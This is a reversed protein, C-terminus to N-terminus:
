WKIAGIFHQIDVIKEPKFEVNHKIFYTLIKSFYATECYQLEAYALQKNNNAYLDELIQNIDMKLDILNLQFDRYESLKQLKINMLFHVNYEDLLNLLHYAYVRPHIKVDKKDILIETIQIKSQDQDKCFKLHEAM